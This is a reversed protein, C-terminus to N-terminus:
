PGPGRRLLGRAEEEASGTYAREAEARGKRDTSVRLALDRDLLARLWEQGYRAAYWSARMHHARDTRSVDSARHSAYEDVPYMAQWFERSRERLVTRLTARLDEMRRRDEPDPEPAKM